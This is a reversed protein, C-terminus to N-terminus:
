GWWTSIDLLSEVGLTVKQKEVTGTVTFGVGTLERRASDIPNGVIPIARTVRGLTSLADAKGRVDLEKTLTDAVGEFYVAIWPGEAKAKDFSLKAGERKFSSRVHKFPTGKKLNLYKDLSLYSMVEWLTPSEVVRIDKIDLNGEIYGFDFHKDPLFIFDLYFEGGDYEGTLGLFKLLEGADNSKIIYKPKRVKVDKPYTSEISFFAKKGKALKASVDFEQWENYGTRLEGKVEYFSGKGLKVEDFDFKFDFAERKKPSVTNKAKEEAINQQIKKEIDRLDLVDGRLDVQGRDYTIGISNSNFIIPAVTVQSSAPKDLNVIGLIDFSLTPSRFTAKDLRVNLSNASLEAFIDAKSEEGAEKIWQLADSKLRAKTADLKIETTVKEAANKRVSLEMGFDGGASLKDSSSFAVVTSADVEGSSSIDYKVDNHTLDETIPLSLDIKLSQKASSPNANTKIDTIEQLLKLANDTPGSAKGNVTLITPQNPVYINRFGVVLESISQKGLNGSKARVEILGDDLVFSGALKQGPTVDDMFHVKLGSYNFKATFKGSSKEEDFPFEAIPGSVELQSNSIRALELNKDLWECLEPEVQSPLYVSLYDVDTEGTTLRADIIPRDFVSSVKGEGTISFGKEDVFSLSDLELNSDIIQYNGKLSIQRFSIKEKFVSPLSISGNSLSIDYGVNPMNNGLELKASFGLITEGQVAKTYSVPLYPTFFDIKAASVKLSLEASPEGFKHTVALALPISSNDKKLNLQLKAKSDKNFNRTIKLDLEDLLYTNNKGKDNVSLRSNAVHLKRVRSLAGFQSELQNAKMNLYHLIDASSENKSEKSALSYGSISLQHESQNYNVIALLGDVFVSKPSVTGSFLDIIGLTSSIRAISIAEKAGRAGIKVDGATLRLGWSIDLDLSAFEVSNKDGVLKSIQSAVLGKVPISFVSLYAIFVLLSLVLSVILLKILSAIKAFM